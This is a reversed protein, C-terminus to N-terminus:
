VSDNSPNTKNASEIHALAGEYKYVTRQLNENEKVLRQFDSPSFNSSSGTLKNPSHGSNSGLGYKFKSSLLFIESALSILNKLEKVNESVSSILKSECTMNEDNNM